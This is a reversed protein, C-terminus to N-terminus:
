PLSRFNQTRTRILAQYQERSPMLPNFRQASLQNLEKPYTTQASAKLELESMLKIEWLRRQDERAGIVSNYLTSLWSGVEPVFHTAFVVLTAATESQIRRKLIQDPELFNLVQLPGLRRNFLNSGLCFWQNESHKFNQSFSETEIDNREFWSQSRRQYRQELRIQRKWKREPQDWLWFFVTLLSSDAYILSDMALRQEDDTLKLRITDVNAVADLLMQEHAQRVLKHFHFYRNLATQALAKTIPEPIISLLSNLGTNIAEWRVSERLGLKLDDLDVMLKPGTSLASVPPTWVIEYNGNKGSQFQLSELIQQAELDNGEPFDLDSIKFSSPALGTAFKKNKWQVSKWWEPPLSTAAEIEFDSDSFQTRLASLKEADIEMEQDLDDSFIEAKLANFETASFNESTTELHGLKFIGKWEPYSLDSITSLEGSDTYHALWRTGLIQDSAQSSFSFLLLYGSILLLCKRM